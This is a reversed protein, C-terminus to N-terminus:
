RRKSQSSPITIDSAIFARIDVGEPGIVWANGKGDHNFALSSGAPLSERLQRIVPGLHETRLSVRNGFKRRINESQLAPVVGGLRQLAAAVSAKGGPQDALLAQALGETEVLIATLYDASRLHNSGRGVALGQARGLTRMLRPTPRPPHPQSGTSAKTLLDAYDVRVQTASFGCSKLARAAISRPSDLLAMLVHAEDVWGHGSQSAIRMARRQIPDV